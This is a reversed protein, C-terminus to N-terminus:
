ASYNPFMLKRYEILLEKWTNMDPFEPLCGFSNNLYTNVISQNKHYKRLDIKVCSTIGTERDKDFFKVTDRRFGDMEMISIQQSSMIVQLNNSTALFFQIIRGFTQQHIGTSCEDIAIPTNRKCADYLVIILKIMNLTGDSEENENLWCVKSPTDAAHHAFRIVQSKRESGPFRKNFEEDGLAQRFFIAESEDMKVKFTNIEYDIINSGLNNLLKLLIPKLAEKDKCGNFLMHLPISEYAYYIDMDDFYSYVNKLDQSEFNKGDYVSIVSTNKIVSQQIITQSEDKIVDDPFSVEVVDKETNFTRNFVTLPKRTGIQKDLVEQFITNNCYSVLYTYRIEAIHFTITITSPKNITDSSFKFFTEPLTQEENTKSDKKDCIIGKLVSLSFLFNSKGTGNNGFLFQFKLIKKHNVDDYWKMFEYGKKPKEMSALFNFTKKDKFSLFNELTIQEIM